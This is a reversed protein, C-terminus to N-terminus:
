EEFIGLATCHFEFIEKYDDVSEVVLDFPELTLSSAM